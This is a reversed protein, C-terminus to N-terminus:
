KKRDKLVNALDIIIQKERDDLDSIDLLHRASRMDLLFDTTVNFLKAMAVLHETHPKSIGMEWASVASRSLGLRRALEAQSMSNEKRVSEIRKYIETM